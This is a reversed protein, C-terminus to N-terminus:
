GRKQNRAQLKKISAVLNEADAVTPVPAPFRIKKWSGPLHKEFHAEVGPGFFNEAGSSKLSPVERSM